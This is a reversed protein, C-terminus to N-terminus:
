SAVKRYGTPCKLAPTVLKKNKVGIKQCTISKKKELASAEKSLAQAVFAEAEQIVDLHKYVPSAYQMGGIGDYFTSAGCAYGNMGNPTTSLYTFVGKYTATLSGGSDGGCGFGTKGNYIILHNALQPREYGVIKQAEALPTLTASLSRPLFTKQHKPSCPLKEEPNCRDQYEGYGHMTIPSGAETMELEVEPTLLAVPAASILDKELVYVVFDDLTGNQYRYNKAIFRQIVRVAGSYDGAKTNPKGVFLYPSKSFIKNGAEDFTYESHAASFVIRSSYLFGSYSAQDGKRIGSQMDSNYMPVIRPNSLDIEANLGAQAPALFSLLFASVLLYRLARKIHMM